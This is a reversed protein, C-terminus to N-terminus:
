VELRSSLQGCTGTVRTLHGGRYDGGPAWFRGLSFVSLPTLFFLQKLAAGAPNRHKRHGRTPALQTGTRATAGRHHLSHEPVHPPRTTICATKRYTRHARPSALQKGTRAIVGRHHLSNEPVHPPGTTTCATKRNSRAFGKSARQAREGPTERGEATTYAAKRQKGAPTRHNRHGRPPALQKRTRATPGRHHM